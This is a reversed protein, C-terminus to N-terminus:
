ICDNDIDVGWSLLVVDLCAEESLPNGRLDVYDGEGLGGNELLPRIDSIANYSLSLTSLNTLGALSGVDSISNAGLTLWTLSTIGALPGVDIISNGYLNLTSLNTLAALPGLNSISNDDLDLDTLNTLGAVPGFDSISNGDLYLATLNSCYELGALDTVGASPAGLETLSALDSPYIPQGILIGLAEHIANQLNPDPFFVQEEDGEGKGEREGEGAGEGEGEDEGEGEAQGEGPGEEHGEGEGEGDQGTVVEFSAAIWDMLGGLMNNVSTFGNEVLIQAARAGRVGTRCYVLIPQDQLDMIEDLRNALENVDINVAGLIYAEAFEEASRVDLVFIGILWLAHAQEVTVDTYQAEGFGEGEAQGEGEGAGEGEGEGEGEDGAGGGEGESPCGLFVLSVALLMMLSATRSSM